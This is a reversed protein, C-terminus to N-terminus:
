RVHPLQGRACLDAPDLLFIRTDANPQFISGGSSFAPVANSETSIDIPVFSKEPTPVLVVDNGLRKQVGAAWDLLPKITVAEEPTAPLSDTFPLQAGFSSKTGGSDERSVLTSVSGTSPSAGIPNLDLETSAPTFSGPLLAALVFASNWRKQGCGATVLRM